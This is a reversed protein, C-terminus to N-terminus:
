SLVVVGDAAVVGLGKPLVFLPNIEAELLQDHLCQVMESFCVIAKVLADVDCLPKGRYGNLLPWTKLEKVMELAEVSNLGGKFPLMRMSTDHLLEAAVGGMGLLIATGLSDKYMGLML